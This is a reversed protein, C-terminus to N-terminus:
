VTVGVNDILRARGFRVAALLRLNGTLTEPVLLSDADVVEAYDLEALPEAEIIGAMLGRVAAPDREGATITAAGARLATYVVPAAAREDPTLYVNRSSMALGDRERRTPCAVVEVPFSL